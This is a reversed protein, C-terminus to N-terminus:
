ETVWVVISDMVMAGIAGIARDDDIVDYDGSFFANYDNEDYGVVCVTYITDKEIFLDRALFINMVTDLGVVFYNLSDFM